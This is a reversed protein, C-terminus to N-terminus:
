MGRKRNGALKKKDNSNDLEGHLKQKHVPWEAAKGRLDEDQSGGHVTSSDGCWMWPARMLVNTRSRRSGAVAHAEREEVSVHGLGVNEKAVLEGGQLACM